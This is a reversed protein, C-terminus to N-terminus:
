SEENGKDDDYPYKFPLGNRVNLQELYPSPDDWTSFITDAKPEAASRLHPWSSMRAARTAVVAQNLYVYFQLLTDNGEDQKCLSIGRAHATNPCVGDDCHYTLLYQGLGFVLNPWTYPDSRRVYELVVERMTEPELAQDIVFLFTFIRDLHDEKHKIPEGSRECFATGAASRDLLSTSRLNCFADWARRRSDCHTKVQGVAVVSECPYFRIGGSAEFRPTVTGDAIVIDMQSSVLGQADFVFGSSIEFRKPLHSRLFERVVNERAAGQEGRHPILQEALEDAMRRGAGTLLDALSFKAM